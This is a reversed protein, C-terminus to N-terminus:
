LIHAILRIRLSMCMLYQYVLNMYRSILYYIMDSLSHRINRLLILCFFRLDFNMEPNLLRSHYKTALINRLSNLISEENVIKDLDDNTTKGNLHESTKDSLKLDLKIDSYLIDNKQQKNLNIDSDVPSTTTFRNAFLKNLDINAM